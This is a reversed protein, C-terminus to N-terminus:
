GHTAEAEDYCLLPDTPHVNVSHRQGDFRVHVYHSAGTVTGFQRHDGTGYIVRQGRRVDVDYTRRVYDMSM